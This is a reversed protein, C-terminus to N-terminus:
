KGEETESPLPKDVKAKLADWDAHRIYFQQRIARLRNLRELAEIGMQSAQALKEQGTANLEIVLHKNAAIAENLKM